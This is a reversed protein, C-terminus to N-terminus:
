YSSHFSFLFFCGWVEKRANRFDSTYRNSVGTRPFLLSATTNSKSRYFLKVLSFSIKFSSSLPPSKRKTLLLLSLQRQSVYIQVKISTHSIVKETVTTCDFSSTQILSFCLLALYIFCIYRVNVNRNQLWFRSFGECSMELCVADSSAAKKGNFPFDWLLSM